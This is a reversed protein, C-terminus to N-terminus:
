QITGVHRTMSIGKEPGFMRLGESRLAPAFERVYRDYSGRDPFTYRVQVTLPEAPEDVVLVEATAAGGRLVADTHGAKLWRVFEHRLADNPFAATVIYALAPM